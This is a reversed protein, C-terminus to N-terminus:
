MVHNDSARGRKPCKNYKVDCGGRTCCCLNKPPAWPAPKCAHAAKQNREAADPQVGAQGGCKRRAEEEETKRVVALKEAM